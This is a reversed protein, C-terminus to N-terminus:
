IDFSASWYALSADVKYSESENSIGVSLRYPGAMDLSINAVKVSPSMRGDGNLKRTRGTKRLDDAFSETQLTGSGEPTHIISAQVGFGVGQIQRRGGIPRPRRM